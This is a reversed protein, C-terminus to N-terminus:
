RRSRITEVAAFGPESCVSVLLHRARPSGAVCHIVRRIICGMSLMCLMHCGSVGLGRVRVYFAEFVRFQM